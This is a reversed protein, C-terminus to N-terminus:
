TDEKYNKLNPGASITLSKDLDRFCAMCIYFYEELNTDCVKLVGPWENCRPCMEETM